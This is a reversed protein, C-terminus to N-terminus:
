PAADQDPRDDVRSLDLAVAVAVVLPVVAHALLEYEGRRPQVVLGAAQLERLHHYLQGTSSEGLINQLQARTLPERVLAALLALRSPSALCELVAAAGAWSAGAAVLESADHERAWRYERGGFSVAGAYAVAGDLLDLLELAARGPRPPPSSWAARGGTGAELEGVRRELSTLRQEISDEM